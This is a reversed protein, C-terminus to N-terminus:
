RDWYILSASVLFALPGLALLLFALGERLFLASVPLRARATGAAASSAEPRAPPLDPANRWPRAFLHLAVSALAWCPLTLLGGRTLAQVSGGVLFLPLAFLIFGAALATAEVLHSRDRADLRERRPLLVFLALGSLVSALGLARFPYLLDLPPAPKGTFGAGPQFDERNWAHRDVRYHRDGGARSISVYTTGGGSELKGLVDRVPEADARVFLARVEAGAESPEMRVRSSQSRADGGLATEDVVRLFREWEPGAAAFVNYQLFEEVYVPFPLAANRRQAETKLQEPVAAERAQQAALDVPVIALLPELPALRLLWLGPLVCGVLLARRLLEM